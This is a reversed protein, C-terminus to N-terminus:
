FQTMHHEEANEAVHLPAQDRITPHRGCCPVSFDEKAAEAEGITQHMPAFLTEPIWYMLIGAILALVGFIVVPFAIGLGTLQSRVMMSIYPALIAGVRATASGIGQATNRFVTPFLESTIIYVGIWNGGVTIYGILSLATTALPFDPFALTNLFVIYTLLVKLASASNMILFNIYPSGALQTMFLLIGFSVVAAVFWQYCIIITWKRMKPTHVLDLPSYKKEEEETALQDRRVNEILVRLMEPDVPKNDKGGYKMLVAHAEDLRNHAILWRPSEPMVGVLFRLFALFSICDVFSSAVGASLMIITSLFICKKRGWADSIMGTIFSGFLMGIFYCSQITAGLYARDCILNWESVTSDFPGDFVYTTCDECCKKVPCTVNATVCHFGPTSFAFVLADFQMAIPFILLHLSFFVTMQYRGFSKLHLFIDDFEHTRGRRGSEGDMNNNFLAENQEQEKSFDEKGDEAEEITQHM